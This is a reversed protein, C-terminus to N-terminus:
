NVGKKAKIQKNLTQKLKKEMVSNSDTEPIQFSGSILNNRGSLTITLTNESVVTEYGLNLTKFTCGLCFISHVVDGILAKKSIKTIKSLLDLEALTDKSIRVSSDNKIKKVM